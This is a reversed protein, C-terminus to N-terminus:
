PQHQDGGNERHIRYVMRIEGPEGIVKSVRRRMTSGLFKDFHWNNIKGKFLQINKHETYLLPEMRLGNHLNWMQMSSIRNEKYTFQEFTVPGVHRTHGCRQLTTPNLPDPGYIELLGGDKLKTLLHEFFHYWFEGIFGDVRHPVHEMIHSALIYDSTRDKVPWDLEWLDVETIDLGRDFNGLDLNHWGEGPFIQKGCALNIKLFDSDRIQEDTIYLDRQKM